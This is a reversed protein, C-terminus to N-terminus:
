STEFLTPLAARMQQELAPALTRVFAATFHQQDRNTVLNGLVVPCVGAPCYFPVLDLEHLRDSRAAVAASPSVPAFLASADQDCGSSTDGEDLQAACEPPPDLFRPSARLAFVDIGAETLRKWVVGDPDFAYEAEEVSTSVNTGEIVVATPRTRVLESIVMETWRDCGEFRSEGTIPCGGRGTVRLSWGNQEAIKQLAPQWVQARSSGVLAVTSGSVSIPDDCWTIPRAPSNVPGGQWCPSDMAPEYDAAALEVPPGIPLPFSRKALSPDRVSEAGPYDTLTYSSVDLSKELTQDSQLAITTTLAAASALVAGMPWLIRTPRVTKARSLPASIFTHTLWAAILAIGVIFLGTRLGVADRDQLVLTFVLLPWHWLYLEYAIDALRILPRTQLIRSPGRIAGAGLLVCAAGSLPLLVWPGPFVDGGDVVLGGAVIIVLGAWGLAPRFRGSPAWRMMVLALVGGLSLEWWRSLSHFYAVSQDSNVMFQAVTFSILTVASTGAVAIKWPDQRARLAFAVLAVVCWPWLLFFQGQLSLSWFHQLPSADPGAAGYALQSSILEWNEYYLLSARVERLDQGQSTLPRLLLIAIVVAALVTVAAPLLRLLTRTYHRIVRGDQQAVSRRYLSGTLLFGSFFLFVDVGGSVRGQGFVHFLVVLALAIGRVGHLETIFGTGVPEDVGTSM